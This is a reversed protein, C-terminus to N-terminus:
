RREGMILYRKADCAHDYEKVVEESGDKKYSYTYLESILDKCSKLIFLKKEAFLDYVHKIGEAVKNNANKFNYIGLEKLKDKLATASPDVYINSVKYDQLLSISRFLM